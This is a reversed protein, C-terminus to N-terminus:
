LCIPLHKIKVHESCDCKRCFTRSNRDNDMLDMWESKVQIESHADTKRQHHGCAWFLLPPLLSHELQHQVMHHFLSLFLIQVHAPGSAHHGGLVLLCVAGGAFGGAGQASHQRLDSICHWRWKNWQSSDRCTIRLGGRRCCVSWYQVMVACMISGQRM